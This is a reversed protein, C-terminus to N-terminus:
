IYFEPDRPVPLKIVLPHGPHVLPRFQDLVCKLNKRAKSCTYDLPPDEAYHSIPSFLVDALMDGVSFVAFRKNQYM